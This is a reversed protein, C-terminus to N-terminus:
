QNQQLRQGLAIPTPLLRDTAFKPQTIAVISEEDM